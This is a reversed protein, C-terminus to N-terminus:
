KNACCKDDRRKREDRPLNMLPNIDCFGSPKFHFGTHEVPMVPWDELRPQHTVGFNYWLVVDTDRIRRDAQTWRPLGLCDPSQNPFDGAPYREEIDFCTVWFASRLFQARKLMPASQLDSFPTCAPAPVLKYGTPKGTKNRRVSSEVKWFRATRADCKREAQSETNLITSEYWFANALPNSSSATTDAKVNMEVVRNYSGDVVTDLRAAFFHQHIPAYLRTDSDLTIGYKRSSEDNALTGTSLVGTLKVDLEVSGALDLYWYFGYEYNAITSISSIVLRRARRVEADDTRWDTHKWATGADEEHMCVANTITAAKGANDCMHGDFYHIEGQCDCGLVLSNANRGMGDEGADFANKLAHPKRPDGYPVVLEAVSLKHLVPRGQFCMGHLTLAERANFGVQFSWDLWKVSTGNVEFSPGKSQSIEIPKLDTRAQSNPVKMNFEPVAKPIVFRAHFESDDYYTVEMKTISLRVHIGEIPRSYPLDNEAPDCYCLLSWALRESPADHDGTYGVCWTDAVIFEPNLGRSAIAQRLPDYRRVLKECEEYELPSMSVQCANLVRNMCEANLVQKEDVPVIDVFTKNSPVHMSIVRALRPLTKGLSLEAKTPELADVSSFLLNMGNHLLKCQNSAYEIEAATLYGMNLTKSYGACLLQSDDLCVQNNDKQANKRRRVALLNSVVSAGLASVFALSAFNM